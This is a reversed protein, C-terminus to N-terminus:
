GSEPEGAITDHFPLCDAETIYDLEQGVDKWQRSPDRHGQGLSYGDDEAQSDAELKPFM